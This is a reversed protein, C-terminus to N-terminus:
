LTYVHNVNFGSNAKTHTVSSKSSIWRSWTNCELDCTVFMCCSYNLLNIKVFPHVLFMSVVVVDDVVVVVM